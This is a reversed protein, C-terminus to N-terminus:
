LFRQPSQKCSWTASGFKSCGAKQRCNQLSVLVQRPRPVGSEMPIVLEPYGYPM